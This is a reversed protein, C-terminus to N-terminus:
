RSGGEHIIRWVKESTVPMEVDRVGYSALADVVANMVAPCIGITGAEGVGKAGLENVPSPTETHDLQFEILESAIPMAYDMFSGTIMQGNEDWKAGEFLAQGIGQALGGHVQGEVLTPSVIRGCDDVAVVKRLHVEGTETDIEVAAVHTGHPYTFNTPEFSGHGELGPEIEQPLKQVVLMCTQAVEQITIARGPVGKVHMRGQDYVIDDVSAELLHAAVAKAKNRVRDIARMLAAGGVALGRSGFTGIGYQVIRTDGHLVTVDEMPVGLEDQILQSFTTEQGQGHPSVGTLVTVKGSPDFRVTASDWGIGGMAASPGMGCIEVYTSLGIGLLKKGGKGAAKQEARLEKYGSLQLAKDMTPEYDGSDYTVGAKTTFPFQSKQIFNKRRIEAPDMGLERAALDVVREVLYLAEPRGAGRYAGTPPTNTMVADLEGFIAPIDYAGSLMLNSLTPVAATNMQQHAGLDAIIRSRLALFKGDKDVALDVYDVQGRGQVTALFHERREEYWKIPKGVKMSARACAIEEPYTDIKVGFGGGVEPVIVHMQHEPLGLSSAIFTKALHPAQSSVWVTMEQRGQDWSAVCARTEMPNGVLRQQVIRLSVVKHAGKMAADVAAKDGVEVHFAVNNKWDDYLKPSSRDAAKEIDVVAPLEEYDVEVADAGDKAAARSTAVVLAIPDGVQRVKGDNVLPYRRVVQMGTINGGGPVPESFEGLEKATYVAVVGPVAKAADINVRTIRGHAIPSRHFSAYHMDILRVDDTYTSRGTILRPDEVRKVKAGVMRMVAM